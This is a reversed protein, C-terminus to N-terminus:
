GRRRESPLVWHTKDLTADDIVETGLRIATEAARAMLSWTEGTLGETMAHFRSTLRPSRWNGGEQLGMTACLAGLFQAYSADSKWRPLQCPEFRNGLQPDTQVARMAEITGILVMPIELQNSLFKLGTMFANRQDTKGCLINHIEDIILMRVRTAGLQNLVQHLRRDRTSGPDPANLARLVLSLFVNFDSSLTEVMLVPMHAHDSTAVTDLNKDKRFKRAITTKGNNSDGHLILCPPRHSPPRHLLQDLM